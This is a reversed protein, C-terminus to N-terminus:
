VGDFLKYNVFEELRRLREIVEEFSPPPPNDFMMNRMGDYDRALSPMLAEPPVVKLTGRKATNLIWGKQEWRFEQNDRVKEFMSGELARKAFITDQMMAVDYYHRSLRNKDAINGLDREYKAATAHMAFLKEVFTRSPRLTGVTTTLDWDGPMHRRVYPTIPVPSHPETEARVCCQLLVGDSIADEKGALLPYKLILSVNAGDRTPKEITCGLREFHAAVEEHLQGHVYGQARQMVGEMVAPFKTKSVHKRFPNPTVRDYLGPVSLVVDVDESFRNILGYGKSLSTGGKFTMTPQLRDGRGNFLFDIVRCVWLDKEAIAAVTGLRAAATEFLLLRDREPQTDFAAYGSRIVRAM